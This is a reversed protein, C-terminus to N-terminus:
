CQLSLMVRPSGCLATLVSHASQIVFGGRFGLLRGRQPPHFSVMYHSNKATYRHSLFLVFYKMLLEVTIFEFLGTLDTISSPHHGTSNVRKYNLHISNFYDTQESSNDAGQSVITPLHSSKFFPSLWIIQLLFLVKDIM